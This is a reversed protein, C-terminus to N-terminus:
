PVPELIVTVALWSYERQPPFRLQYTGFGKLSSDPLPTSSVRSASPFAVTASIAPGCHWAPSLRIEAWM